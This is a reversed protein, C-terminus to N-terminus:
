DTLYHPLLRWAGLGLFPLAMVLANGAETGTILPTVSNKGYHLAQAMVLLTTPGPLMCFAFSAGLFSLWIEIDLLYVQVQGRPAQGLIPLM